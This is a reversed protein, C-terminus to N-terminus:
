SLRFTEVANEVLIRRRLAPDLGLFTRRPFDNDWHPYDSSFILTKEAYIM